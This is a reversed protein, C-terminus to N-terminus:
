PKSESETDSQWFEGVRCAEEAARSEDTTLLIGYERVVFCLPPRLDEIAQLIAGLPADKISIETPQDPPLSSDALAQKDLVFNVGSMESLKALVDDLPAQKFEVSTKKGLAKRITAVGPGRPAAHSSVRGVGGGFGTGIVTTAEIGKAKGLSFQLEAASTAAAELALRLNENSIASTAALKQAEAARNHESVAKAHVGLIEQAVRLRTRKLVAEAEQLKAKAVLVDPNNELAERLAVDLDPVPPNTAGTTTKEIPSSGPAVQQQHAARAFPVVFAASLIFSRVVLTSLSLNSTHM